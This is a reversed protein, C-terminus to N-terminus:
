QAAAEFYPFVRSGARAAQAYLSAVGSQVKPDGFRSVPGLNRPGEARPQTEPRGLETLRAIADDSSLPVAGLLAFGHERLHLSLQDELYIPLRFLHFAHPALHADHDRSAALTISELAAAQATRPFVREIFNAGAPSLFQSRWWPTPLREGLAAVLLRLRLIPLLM